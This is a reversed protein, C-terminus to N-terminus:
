ATQAVQRPLQRRRRAGPFHRWGDRATRTFVEGFVQAGRSVSQVARARM